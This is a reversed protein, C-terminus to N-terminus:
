FSRLANLLDRITFETWHKGTFCIRANSMDWLLLDGISKDGNKIILEPPIFYSSYTNEKIDSKSISEPDLKEAEVKRAIIKCASVIEDQGDYNICLNLFFHDYSKTEEMLQKVSEVLRGPLDYWKGLVSVKVNNEHVESSKSLGQALDALFDIVKVAQDPELKQTSMLNITVIPIKLKVQLKIIQRILVSIKTYLEELSINHKESYDLDASTAELNLAIHKPLKPKQSIEDLLNQIKDPM